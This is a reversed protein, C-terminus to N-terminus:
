ITITGSGSFVNPSGFFTDIQAMTYTGASLLVNNYELKILTISLDNQLSALAEMTIENGTFTSGSMIRLEGTPSIFIRSLNFISGSQLQMFGNKIQTLPSTVTNPGNFATNFGIVISLPNVDEVINVPGVIFGVHDGDEFTNKGYAKWATSTTDWDTYGQMRDFWLRNVPATLDAEDGFSVHFDNHLIHNTNSWGMLWIRTIDGTNNYLYKYPDDDEITLRTIENFEGGRIYAEYRSATSTDAHTFSEAKLHVWCEYWVNEEVQQDILVDPAGGAHTPDDYWLMLPNVFDTDFKIRFYNASQVRLQTNVRSSVKNIYFRFYLTFPQDTPITQSSLEFFHHTDNNAPYFRVYRNDADADVAARNSSGSLNTYLSYDIVGTPINQYNELMIFNSDMSDSPAFLRQWHQLKLPQGM